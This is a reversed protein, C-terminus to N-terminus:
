ERIADGGCVVHGGPPGLFGSIWPWDCPMMGMVAPFFFAAPRGIVGRRKSM